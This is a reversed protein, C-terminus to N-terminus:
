YYPLYQGDIVQEPKLESTIIKKQFYFASYREIVKPLARPSQYNNFADINDRRDMLKIGKLSVPEKLSLQQQIIQNGEMENQQWWDVAEFWSRIFNRVAKPQEKLFTGHFVAVDPILGPTQRSTYVIRAGANVSQSVYPEWTHAIDIQKSQLLQNAEAADMDVLEIDTFKTKRDILFQQVFLEGFGGLNTGIRMNDLFRPLPQLSLLADGGASLDTILAIRTEPLEEILAFADGAAVCVIDLKAQRFQNLMINTDEPVFYSVQLNHQKFLGLHNAIVVPYYGPWLDIGINITQQNDDPQPTTQAICPASIFLIAFIVAILTKM